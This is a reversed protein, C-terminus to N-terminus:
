HSSNLRTSKRDERLLDGFRQVGFDGIQAVSQVLDFARQGFMARRLRPPPHRFDAGGGDAIAAEERRLPLRQCSQGGRVGGPKRRVVSRLLTTYPLLTDLLKSTPPGRTM